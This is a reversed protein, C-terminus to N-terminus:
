HHNIPHPLIKNQLGFRDIIEEWTTVGVFHQTIEKLEDNNLHPLSKSIVDFSMLLKRFFEINQQM